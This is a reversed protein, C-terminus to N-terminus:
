SIELRVVGDPYLLTPEGYSVITFRIERLVLDGSEYVMSAPNHDGTALWGRIAERMSKLLPDGSLLEAHALEAEPSVAFYFDPMPRCKPPMNAPFTM